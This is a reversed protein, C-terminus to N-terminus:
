LQPIQKHCQGQSSTLSGAFDNLHSMFLTTRNLTYHETVDYKDKFKYSYKWAYRGELESDLLFVKPGNGDIRTLDKSETDFTMASFRIDIKGNEVM